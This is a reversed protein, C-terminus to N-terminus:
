NVCRFKLDIVFCVNMLLLYAEVSILIFKIGM